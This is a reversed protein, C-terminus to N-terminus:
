YDYGSLRQTRTGTGIRLYRGAMRADSQLDKITDDLLKREVVTTPEASRIGQVQDRAKNSFHEIRQSREVCIIVEDFDPLIACWVQNAHIAEKTPLDISQKDTLEITEITLDPFPGAEAVVTNALLLIALSVVAARVPAIGRLVM